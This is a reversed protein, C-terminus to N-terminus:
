ATRSKRTKICFVLLSVFALAILAQLIMHYTDPIAITNSPSIIHHTDNFIRNYAAVGAPSLFYNMAQATLWLFCFVVMIYKFINEKLFYLIVLVAYICFFLITTFDFDRLTLTTEGFSVGIVALSFWVLLAILVMKVYTKM